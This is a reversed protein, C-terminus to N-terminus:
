MDSVIRELFLRILAAQEDKQNYLSTNAYSVSSPADPMNELSM